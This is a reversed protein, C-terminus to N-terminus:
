ARKRFLVVNDPASAPHPRHTSSTATNSRPALADALRHAERAATTALSVVAARQGASADVAELDATLMDLVAAAYRAQMDPDTLM